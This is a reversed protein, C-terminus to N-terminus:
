TKTINLLRPQVIKQLKQKGLQTQYLKFRILQPLLTIHSALFKSKHTLYSQDSKALGSASMKEVMCHRAGKGVMLM